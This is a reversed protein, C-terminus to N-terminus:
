RGKEARSTARKNNTSQAQGYAKAMMASPRLSPRSTLGARTIHSTLHSFEEREKQMMVTSHSVIELRSASAASVSLVLFCLWGWPGVRSYRSM